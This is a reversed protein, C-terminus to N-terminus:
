NENTETAFFLHHELKKNIGEVFTRASSMGGEKGVLTTKGYRDLFYQNLVFFERMARSPRNLMAVSCRFEGLGKLEKKTVRRGEPSLFQWLKMLPLLDRWVLARSQIDFNALNKPFPPLVKRNLKLVKLLFPRPRICDISRVVGQYEKLDTLFYVKEQVRFVATDKFLVKGVDKAALAEFQIAIMSLLLGSLLIKM